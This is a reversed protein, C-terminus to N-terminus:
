AVMQIKYKKDLQEVKYLLFFLCIKNIILGLVYCSSSHWEVLIDLCRESLGASSLTRGLDAFGRNASSVTIFSTRLFPFV